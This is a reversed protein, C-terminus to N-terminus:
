TRMLAQLDSLLDGLAPGTWTTNLIGYSESQNFQRGPATSQTGDLAWFSWDLNNDAIYQTVYTWWVAQWSNGRVCGDPGSNCTGFEGLWVPAQYAAGQTQFVYGWAADLRAKFDDYSPQPSTPGSWSYEHSEYVLREPISLSIPRSAVGTLDLAYSIGEVVVLMNPNAALVVNGAHEAADPWNVAPDGNREWTPSLSKGAVVTSRIENRLDMGVVMSNNAYRKAMFSLAAEWQTTSVNTSYWLGQGDTSSCCWNATLTHCDLIVYIGAATLAEVAADVCDLAHKGLLQPTATVDLDNVRPNQLAVDVSFPLRVMNFGFSAALNAIAEPTQYNLGGVCYDLEEAGYWNFGQLRVRSGTAADVIWRGQTKLYAASAGAAIAAIAAVARRM